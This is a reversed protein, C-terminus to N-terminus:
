ARHQEQRASTLWIASTQLRRVLAPQGNAGLKSFIVKSCTRTTEVTWGLMHAASKISHGDAILTALRAESKSLGFYTAVLDVPLTAAQPHQRLMAVVTPEPITQMRRFVIEGDSFSLPACMSNEAAASIRRRFEQGFVGDTFRPVERLQSTEACRELWEFGFSSAAILKGTVDLQLWGCGLATQVEHDLEAHQLRQQNQQWMELALGLYPALGLLFQGDVARFDPQTASRSLCLTVSGLNDSRVRLLRVPTDPGASNALEDQAYVRDFRLRGRVASDPICCSEDGWRQAGGIHDWIMATSDSKTVRRLVAFFTEWPRDCDSRTAQFLSRLLDTQQDLVLM